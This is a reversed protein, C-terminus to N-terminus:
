QGVVQDAFTANLHSHEKGRESQWTRSVNALQKMLNERSEQTLEGMGEWELSFSRRGPVRVILHDEKSVDISSIRLSLWHDRCVDLVELASLATGALRSGPEPERPRYGLIVPLDSLRRRLVFVVGEFDVGVAGTRGVRALADREAVAIRVTSPLERTISVTRVNPVRLLNARAEKINFGFLNTGENVKAYERVLDAGVVAGQRVNIDLKKIAFRENRSFLFEGALSCAFWATVCAAAVVGLVLVAVATRRPTEGWNVSKSKVDLVSRRRKNKRRGLLRRGSLEEDEFLM